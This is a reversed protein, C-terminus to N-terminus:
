IRSAGMTLRVAIERQRASARALMLNALNVCAILLVLGSIGLLLTLPRSYQERLRSIGSGAPIALLKMALYPKVSDPPFDAPLTAEFIGASSAQFIASAEEIPVGPKLRAMVTLWWTTGSD